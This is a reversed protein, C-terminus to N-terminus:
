GDPRPLTVLRPAARESLTAAIDPPVPVNSGMVAGLIGLRKGMTGEESAM